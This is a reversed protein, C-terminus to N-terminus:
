CTVIDKIVLGYKEVIEKVINEVQAPDSINVDRFGLQVVLKGYDYADVDICTTGGVLKSFFEQIVNIQSSYYFKKAEVTQEFPLLNRSEKFLSNWNDIDTEYFLGFNICDIFVRESRDFNIFLTNDTNEFHVEVTNVYTNNKLPAMISNFIEDKNTTKYYM